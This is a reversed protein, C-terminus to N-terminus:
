AGSGELWITQVMPPLTLSFEPPTCQRLYPSVVFLTMPISITVMSPSISRRPPFYRSGAPYSMSPMTVPESPNSPTMVSTVTLIRCSGCVALAMSSPNGSLSLAPSHTAPIILAPM